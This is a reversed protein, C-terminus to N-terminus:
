LLEPAADYHTRIDGLRRLLWRAMTRIDGPPIEAAMTVQEVVMRRLWARLKESADSAALDVPLPAETESRRGGSGRKLLRAVADDLDPAISAALLLLEALDRTCGQCLSASDGVPAKCSGCAPATM